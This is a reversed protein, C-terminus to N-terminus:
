TCNARYAGASSLKSWIVCDTADSIKCGRISFVLNIKVQAMVSCFLCLVGVFMVQSLQDVRLLLELTKVGLFM